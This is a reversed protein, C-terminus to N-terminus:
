KEFYSIYKPTYSTFDKIIILIKKNLNDFQILSFIVFFSVAEINYLIGQKGFGKVPTFIEYKFLIFLLITYLIINL